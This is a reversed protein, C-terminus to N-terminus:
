NIVSSTAAATILVTVFSEIKLMKVIPLPINQQVSQENLEPTVM